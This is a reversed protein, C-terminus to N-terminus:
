IGLSELGYITNDRGITVIHIGTKIMLPRKQWQKALGSFKESHPVAVALVDDPSAFEVTVLQGIAERILPYEKSSKNRILPGKKSEVRLKKGIKLEAVLDGEGSSSHVVIANQYDRNRYSCQWRSEAASGFWGSSNLFEVIPFHVTNGTKVQAGDIATVVDGTVHGREILAIALRLTVEAEPMKDKPLVYKDMLILYGAKKLQVTVMGQM